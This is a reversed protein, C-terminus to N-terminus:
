KRSFFFDRIKAQKKTKSIFNFVSAEIMDLSDLHLLGTGEMDGCCRCILGFAAVVEAASYARTAAAEDPRDEDGSSSDAQADQTGAVAAVIDEDALSAVAEVNSDAEVFDDASVEPPVAAPFISSLERFSDEICEDDGDEGTEALEATVFGAKPHCPVVPKLEPPPPQPPLLQLPEVPVPPGVDAANDLSMNSDEHIKQKGSVGINQDMPCLPYNTQSIPTTKLYQRLTSSLTRYAVGIPAKSRTDKIPQLKRRANLFM